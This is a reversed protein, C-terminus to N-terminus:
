QVRQPHLLPLPTYEKLEYIHTYIHIQTDKMPYRSRSEKVGEITKQKTHTNPGVM